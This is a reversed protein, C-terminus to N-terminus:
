KKVIDKILLHGNPLVQLGQINKNVLVSFSRTYLPIIFNDNFIEENSNYMLNLDDNQFKHNIYYKIDDTKTTGSNYRSYKIDGSDKNINIKAEFNSIWDKSISALIREELKTGNYKLKLELKTSMESFKDKIIKIEDSLPKETDIFPKSNNYLIISSLFKPEVFRHILKKLENNKFIDSDRDYELFEFINTKFSIFEPKKSSELRREYPIEFFPLGVFDIQKLDFMQYSAIDDQSIKFIIKEIRTNPSDWYNKNKKLQIEKDSISEIEYASNSIIDNGNKKMPFMFTNSLFEDFNEMPKELEIKIEKDSIKKIGLDELNAKGDYYKKANKIIFLRYSYPSNKDKNLVEVWSKIYDDSLIKQGDSWKIDDRLKIDWVTYDDNYKIEEAQNLSIKGHSSYETLGEYIQTLLAENEINTYQSNDFIYDQKKIITKITNNTDKTNEEKNQKPSKGCASIFIAFLIIYFVRFSKKQM